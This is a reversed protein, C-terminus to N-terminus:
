SSGDQTYCWHYTSHIKSFRVSGVRLAQTGILSDNSRALCKKWRKKNIYILLAYAGDCLSSSWEWLSSGAWFCTLCSLKQKTVAQKRWEIFNSTNGPRAAECCMANHAFAFEPFAIGWDALLKLATIPSTFNVSSWCCTVLVQLMKCFSSTFWLIMSYNLNSPVKCIM